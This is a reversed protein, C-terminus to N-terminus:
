RMAKVRKLLQSMSIRIPSEPNDANWDAVDQRADAKAAEDKDFIARAWKDAIESERMKNLGVLQQVDRTAQQVKAVDNPQFGIAKVFTDYGDVDIVKRGGQDRYMGTSAM